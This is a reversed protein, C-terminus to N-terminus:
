PHFAAAGSRRRAVMDPLVADNGVEVERETGLLELLISVREKAPLVRTVVARLGRFPGSVVDVEEGAKLQADIVVTESDAVYARLEDIAAVPVVSPIGGFSVIRSVGRVAQVHRYYPVYDFRVFVYGPFMAEDVWAVGTVRSRKFRIRPSFVEFGLDQRLHVATINERKPQARICYWHLGEPFTM